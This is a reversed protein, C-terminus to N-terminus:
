PRTATRRRHNQISELIRDISLDKQWDQRDRTYNGTGSRHLRLFRILGAPGLERKLVDLAHRTFEEDTLNDLSIM